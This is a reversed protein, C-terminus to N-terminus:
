TNRLPNKQFPFGVWERTDSIVNFRIGEYRMKGSFQVCVGGCGGYANRLVQIAGLVFLYEEM